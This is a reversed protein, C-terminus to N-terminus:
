LTQFTAPSLDGFSDMSIDLAWFAMVKQLQTTKNGSFGIHYMIGLAVWVYVNSNEILQNNKEYYIAHKNYNM